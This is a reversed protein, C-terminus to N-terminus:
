RAPPEGTGGAGAMRCARSMLLAGTGFFVAALAFTPRSSGFVEAVFGGLATGILARVGVLALHVGMYRASSGPPAFLIPGMTWVISVGAMGLGYLSFLTVAQAPTAAFVMLSAFGQLVVYSILALRELGIKHLMRGAWGISAIMALNTVVGKALSADSYNMHLEQDFLRAFVPQMCMFGLGYILIGVEFRRFGADRV